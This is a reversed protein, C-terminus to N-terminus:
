FLSRGDLAGCPGVASDRDSVGTAPNYVGACGRAGIVTNGHKDPHLIGWIQPLGDGDLDSTADVTFHTGGGGTTVAYSFYVNGEPRWGVTEFNSTPPGTDVFDGSRPGSHTAPSAPAMVFVGATSMYAMQAHRIAQLNTKAESTKARMQYRSFGPMATAALVGVIAVAIM